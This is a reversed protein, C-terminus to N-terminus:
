SMIFMEHLRYNFGWFLFTLKVKRHSYKGASDLFCFPWRTLEMYMSFGVFVWASPVLSFGWAQSLHRTRKPTTEASLFTPQGSSCNRNLPVCRSGSHVYTFAWPLISCWMRLAACCFWKYWQVRLIYSRSWNTRDQLLVCHQHYALQICLQTKMLCFRLFQDAQIYM